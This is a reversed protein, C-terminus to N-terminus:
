KIFEHLDEIMFADAFQLCARNKYYRFRTEGYGSELQAATVTNEKVYISWLIKQSIADCCEIAERCRDVVQGAYIRKAITEEVQNKVGRGMPMDTIAPSQMGGVDRHSYRQAKPLEDKFFHKVKDITAKENVQPFLENFSVM